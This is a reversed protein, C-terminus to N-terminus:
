HDRIPYANALITASERMVKLDNESWYLPSQCHHAALLGWLGKSTLIPAVLNARVNIMRLFDRHCDAIEAKEIDSIASIRGKQYLAAYEDNFCEDPGTSGFISFKASSLSEFTVRGLWHRYFYYLVVRDVDLNKRLNDTVTQVLKDEALSNSLRNLLKKLGPDSM